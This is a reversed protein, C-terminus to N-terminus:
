VTGREEVKRQLRRLNRRCAKVKYEDQGRRQSLGRCASSSSSFGIRAPKSHSLSSDHVRSMTCWFFSPAGTLLFFFLFPPSSSHSDTQTM